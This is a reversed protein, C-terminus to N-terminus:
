NIVRLKPNSYFQPLDIEWKHYAEFMEFQLDNTFMFAVEPTDSGTRNPRIQMILGLKYPHGDLIYDKPPITAVYRTDKGLTVERKAQRIMGAAVGNDVLNDMMQTWSDSFTLLPEVLNMIANGLILVGIDYLTGDISVKYVRTIECFTDSLDLVKKDKRDFNLLVKPTFKRDSM